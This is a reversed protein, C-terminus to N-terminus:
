WRSYPSYSYSSAGYGWADRGWGDFYSAKRKPLSGVAEVLERVTHYRAFLEESAQRGWACLDPMGLWVGPSWYRDSDVRFRIRDWDMDAVEDGFRRLLHARLYARTEDPPESVFREIREPSPMAEVHGAAALQLFLGDHPDLSAYRLDLCKLEPSRWGLGRRSRQRDLLLYKLAWDCRRALAGLDRRVLWDLTEKWCAVIAEAGPVSDGAEGSAVFEGALDVLGQQVEVATAKRGRGVLALPQALTRDRSVEWCAALPDDLVLLPEAWGAELMALVLQTAGAKLYNAIPCLANDFFIIHMRAFDDGAHPEDRTNLLPRRHTTQSGTLEEFWDPRQALQYDCPTRGNGAGVQGQGTYLTATALHTAFFGALHPKRGFLDDFLQRRVLVNLHHGWSKKGDSVSALVNLREGEDLKASAAEQALRAIRLGAHVHAAHDSARVHEPLNIELHDSDIYASGVNGSLFRRGWEISTGAWYSARPYGPIEALLKRAADWVSRGYPGDTEIANALEFDAGIVKVCPGM